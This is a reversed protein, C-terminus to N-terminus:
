VDLRLSDRIARVEAARGPMRSAAQSAYTAPIPPLDAMARDAAASAAFLAARNEPTSAADYATRAAGVGYADEVAKRLAVMRRRLAHAERCAQGHARASDEVALTAGYVENLNLALENVAHTRRGELEVKLVEAEAQLERRTAPRAASKLAAERAANVDAEEIAEVARALRAAVEEVPLAPIATTM